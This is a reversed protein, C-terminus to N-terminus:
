ISRLGEENIIAIERGHVRIFNDEKFEGLCRIVTETATGALSALDDRTVFIPTNEDPKSYRKALELLAEATRKRVTDYALKLLQKEQKEIQNSLMKVFQNAVNRNKYMLSLFDEKPIKIIESDELVLASDSYDKDKFLPPHGFFEGESYINTIFEKGSDNTKYTKVKGKNLFFLYHPKDGAHFIIEKKKYHSEPRTEKLDKLEHIEKAQDLFLNLGEKNRTFETKLIENKKLRAEVASLLETDEFPKTIYDDAGLDMGKRLESKEAKATLFVFPILATAPDKSLIHLVGYGDLGPMLIDSIILDPIVERALISGEKGNSATLVEFQGLKLIESTNERMVTDDEIILIKKM